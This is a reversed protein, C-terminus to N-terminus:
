LQVKRIMIFSRGSTNCSESDESNASSLQKNLDPLFKLWIVFDICFLKSLIEVQHSVQTNLIDSSLVTTTTNERRVFVWLSKVILLWKILISLLAFNRPRWSLSSHAYLIGLLFHLFRKFRNRATAPLVHPALSFDRRVIYFSLERLLLNHSLLM